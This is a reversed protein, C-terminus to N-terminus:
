SHHQSSRGILCIVKVISMREFYMYRHGLDKPLKSIIHLSLFPSPGNLDVLIAYIFLYDFYDNTISPGHFFLFLFLLILTKGAPTLDMNLPRKRPFIM